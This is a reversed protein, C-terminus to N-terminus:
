SNRFLQSPVASCRDVCFVSFECGSQKGLDAAHDVKMSTAGPSQWELAAGTEEQRSM